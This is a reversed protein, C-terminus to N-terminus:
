EPNLDIIDKNFTTTLTTDASYQGSYIYITTFQLPLCLM